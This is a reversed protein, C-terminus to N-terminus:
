VIPNAIRDYIANSWGIHKSGYKRIIDCVKSRLINTDRGDILEVITQLLLEERGDFWDRIVTKPVRSSSSMSDLTFKNEFYSIPYPLVGIRVMIKSEYNCTLCTLWRFAFLRQMEKVFVPSLTTKGIETIYNELPVDTDSRLMIYEENRFLIRQKGVQPIDFVSKLDDAILPIEDKYKVIKVELLKNKKYVNMIWILLREERGKRYVSVYKDIEGVHSGNWSLSIGEIPPIIQVKIDEYEMKSEISKNYNFNPKKWIHSYVM